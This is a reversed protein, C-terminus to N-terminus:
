LRGTHGGFNPNTTQPDIIHGGHLDEDRQKFLTLAAGLVILVALQITLWIALLARQWVPVPEVPGVRVSSPVGQPLVIGGTRPTQAQPQGNPTAPMQKMNQPASMDGNGNRIMGPGQTAKRGPPEIGPIGGMDPGTVPPTTKQNIKTPNAFDENLTPQQPMQSPAVTQDGRPTQLRSQANAPLSASLVMLSAAVLVGARLYKEAMGGGAKQAL